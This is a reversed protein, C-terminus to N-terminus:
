VLADYHGTKTETDSKLEIVATGHGESGVESLLGEQTVNESRMRMSMYLVFGVIPSVSAIGIEMILHGLIGFVDPLLRLLWDVLYFAACLGFQFCFQACLVFLMFQKFLNSSREMAEPASKDEVVISPIISTTVVSFVYMIFFMAGVMVFGNGKMYAFPHFAIPWGIAIFFLVTIVLGLAFQFVYITKMKKKGEKISRTVSPALGAYIEAAM